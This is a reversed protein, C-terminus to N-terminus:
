ASERSRSSDAVSIERRVESLLDEFTHTAPSIIHQFGNSRASDATIPGICAALTGRARALSEEGLNSVFAEVASPSAFVIADASSLERIEDPAGAARETRYISVETVEFGRDRLTEVLRAEAINTRLLLARPKVQSDVRMPLEDGLARTLFVSPVFAVPIRSDRLKRATGEGVAAVEPKGSWDHKLGLDEIRQNFMAVGNASTFVLWDYRQLDRLSADISSWDRPPLLDITPVSVPDFGRSKALSSLQANGERSRTLIVRIKREAPRVTGAKGSGTL